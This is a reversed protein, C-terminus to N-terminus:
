SSTTQPTREFSVFQLVLVSLGLLILTSHFIISFITLKGKKYQVRLHIAVPLLYMYLLGCIAGTYRLVTGVMPYFASFAFTISCVFLNLCFVQLIGPYSQKEPNKRYIFSFVQSRIVTLLLPYITILQFLVSARAINAYISHSSFQNLFNQQIIPSYRFAFAGLMGPVAYILGAIIYAVATDRKTHKLSKQNKLISGIVNHIFFSLSLIALLHSFHANFLDLHNVLVTDGKEIREGSISFHDNNYQTLYNNDILSSTMLEKVSTIVVTVQNDFPDIMQEICTYLIFVILFLVFFIGFSNLKGLVTLNKLLSIPFVIVIIIFSSFIGNWYWPPGNQVWPYIIDTDYQINFIGNVISLLCDKMFIHYAISAGILIVVSSLLCIIESWKGLHEVCVKSFDQIETLVKTKKSKKSTYYTTSTNNTYENNDNVNNIISNNSDIINKKEEDEEKPEYRYKFLSHQVVLHMTYYSILGVIIFVVIGLYLGSQRFGWALSLITSGVMTNIISFITQISGATRSSLKKFYEENSGEEANATSNTIIEQEDVDQHSAYNITTKDQSLLSTSDTGSDSRNFLKSLFNTM